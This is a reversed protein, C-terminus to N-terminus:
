VEKKNNVFWNLYKIKNIINKYIIEQHKEPFEYIKLIESNKVDYFILGREDFYINTVGSIEYKLEKIGLKILNENFSSLWDKSIFCPRQETVSYYM